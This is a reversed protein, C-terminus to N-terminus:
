PAAPPQSAPTSAPLPTEPTAAPPQVTAPAPAAGFSKALVEHVVEAVAQPDVAGAPGPVGRPGEPGPSGSAGKPGAPGPVSVREIAAAATNEVARLRHGSHAYLAALAASAAAGVAPLVAQVVAPEHFGPHYLGLFALVLAGAHGVLTQRGEATSLLGPRSTSTM